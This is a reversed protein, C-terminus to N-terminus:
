RLYRILAKARTDYSHQNEYSYGGGALDALKQQNDSIGMLIWMAAVTPMM